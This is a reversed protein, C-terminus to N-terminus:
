YNPNQKLKPNVRMELHLYRGPYQRSKNFSSQAIIKVDNGFGSYDAIGDEDILTVAPFPSKLRNQVAPDPLGMVPKTLANEAFRWRLDMYGFWENFENDQFGSLPGYANNM